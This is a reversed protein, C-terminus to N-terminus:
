GGMYQGLLTLREGEFLIEVGQAATGAEPGQATVHLTGDGVELAGDGIAPRRAPRALADRPRFPLEGRLVPVDPAQLGRLGSVLRGQRRVWAVVPCEGAEAM